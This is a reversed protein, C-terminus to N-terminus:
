HVFRLLYNHSSTIRRIFKDDRGEAISYRILRKFFDLRYKVYKSMITEPVLALEKELAMLCRNEQNKIEPDLFEIVEIEFDYEEKIERKVADECKEGFEVSGGPFDWKGHENRAGKGRKAIFVKGEDNFIIAGSGVGIFDKGKIFKKRRGEAVKILKKLSDEAM